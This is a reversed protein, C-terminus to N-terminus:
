DCVTEITFIGKAALRRTSVRVEDLTLGTMAAILEDSPSSKGDEDSFLAICEAVKRDKKAGPYKRIAALMADIDINLEENEHLKTAM